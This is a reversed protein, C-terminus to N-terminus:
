IHDWWEKAPTGSPVSNVPRQRGRPKRYTPFEVKLIDERPIAVSEGDFCTNCQMSCRNGRYVNYLHYIATSVCGSRPGAVFKVVFPKTKRIFTGLLDYEFKESFCLCIDEVIEPAGLYDDNGVESVKFAHDRSLLAYPSWHTEDSVKMAYLGANHHDGMDEMFATWEASSIARKVLSHLLDWIGNICQGLPLINQEFNNLPITRTLHFWCTQDYTSPLTSVKRVEYYLLDEPPRPYYRNEQYFRELDLADFVSELKIRKVGQISELSDYTSDTTECDLVKMRVINWIFTELTPM